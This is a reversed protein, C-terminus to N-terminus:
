ARIEELPVGRKELCRTLQQRARVINQLFANLSMGLSRAIRRDGDEHQRRLRAELAQRPRRAIRKMCDAIARRLSPDPPPDPQVPVDPLEDPPLYRERRTRRAENRALNRAMGIAFRLSADPGALERGSATDTAFIWMRMLTEQVIGEVDVARAFPELSRRIPREVRGMWATFAALDGRRAAAFRDDVETV